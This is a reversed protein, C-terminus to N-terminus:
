PEDGMAPAHREQRNVGAQSGEQEFPTLRDNVLKVPAIARKAFSGSICCPSASGKRRRSLPHSRVATKLQGVPVASKSWASPRCVRLRASQRVLRALGGVFKSHTGVTQVRRYAPVGSQRAVEAYEIDLEVLTESHESVFALPVVVLGVGEEGARKIEDETNPKLWEQPTVRSQYALKWNLGAIGLREVIAEATERVQDPYPDGRKVIVKPLGHATFLLRVPSGKGDDPWYRRILDVYAEIFEPETPYEWITRTPAALGDRKAAREWDTVASGTTTTSFQPYLPLLVIEDPKWAKVDRAVDEAFPHWYRMATFCRVRGFDALEKELAARQAETQELIPSKGGLQRYIERAIPARRGALIKAILWRTPWRVPIIAPDSFFNTLYPKVAELSDPGGLQLLIVAIRPRQVGGMTM